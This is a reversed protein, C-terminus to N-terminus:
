MYLLSDSHPASSFLAILTVARASHSDSSTLPWLQSQCHAQQSNLRRIATPVFLHSCQEKKSKPPIFQHSFTIDMQWLEDYLSSSSNNLVSIMKKRETRQNQNSQLAMDLPRTDEGSSPSDVSWQSKNVMRTLISLLHRSELRRAGHTNPITYEIKYAM